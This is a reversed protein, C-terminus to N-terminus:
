APNEDSRDHNPPEEPAAKKQQERLRAGLDRLTDMKISVRALARELDQREQRCECLMQDVIMPLVLDHFTTM